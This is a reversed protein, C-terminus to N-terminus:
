RRSSRTERPRGRLLFSARPLRSGATPRVPLTHTERAMWQSPTATDDPAAGCCNMCSHMVPQTSRRGLVRKLTCAGSADYQTYFGTRARQQGFRGGHRAGVCRVRQKRLVGYLRRVHGGPEGQKRLGLVRRGHVDYRRPIRGRDFRHRSGPRPRRAHKRFLDLIRHRPRHGVNRRSRLRRVDFRAQRGDQCYTVGRWKEVAAPAM